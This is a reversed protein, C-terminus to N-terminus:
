NVTSPFLLLHMLFIVVLWEIEPTPSGAVEITFIADTHLLAEIDTPKKTIKPGALVSLCM